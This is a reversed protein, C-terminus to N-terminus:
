DIRSYIGLSEKVGLLQIELSHQPQVSRSEPESASIAPRLLEKRTPHKNYEINVSAHPGEWVPSWSITKRPIWPTEIENQVAVATPIM